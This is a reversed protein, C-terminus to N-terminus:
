DDEELEFDLIEGTAADITYEYEMGDKYFEVEYFMSGHEKEFKAKSFYVESAQCDAHNLAIEKERILTRQM